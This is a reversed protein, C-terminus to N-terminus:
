SMNKRMIARHLGQNFRQCALVSARSYVHSSSVFPRGCIRPKQSARVGSRLWLARSLLAPYCRLLVPGHAQARMKTTAFDAEMGTNVASLLDVACEPAHQCTCSVGRPTYETSTFYLTRVGPNTSMLYVTCVAQNTSM